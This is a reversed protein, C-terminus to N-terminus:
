QFEKRSIGILILGILSLISSALFPGMTFLGLLGGALAVGWLKRKLSLIGGLIPFVAIIAGITGCLTLLEKLQEPTITPDMQQLQSIDIISEVASVDMMVASIWFVLAIIGSVILLVGAIMPMSSKNSTQQLMDKVTNQELTKDETFDDKPINNTEM